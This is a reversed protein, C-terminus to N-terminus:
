PFVALFIESDKAETPIAIKEKPDAIPKNM